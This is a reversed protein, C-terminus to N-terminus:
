DTDEFTEYTKVTVSSIKKKSAAILLVVFGAVFIALFIWLFILPVIGLQNCFEYNRICGATYGIICAIMLLIGVFSVVINIDVQRM